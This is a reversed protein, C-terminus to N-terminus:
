CTVRTRQRTKSCCDTNKHTFITSDERYLLFRCDFNISIPTHIVCCLFLLPGSINEQPVDGKLITQNVGM